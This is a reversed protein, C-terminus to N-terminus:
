HTCDGIRQGRVQVETVTPPAGPIEATLTMDSSFTAQLDGGFTSSVRLRAGSTMEQCVAELRYSAGVRALGNTSCGPTNALQLDSLAQDTGVCVTEEEGAEGDTSSVTRWLGPRLMPMTNDEAAAESVLDPAPVPRSEEVGQGVSQSDCAAVSIALVFFMKSFVKTM